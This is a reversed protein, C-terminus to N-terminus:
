RLVRGTPGQGLFLEAGSLLSPAADVLEVRATREWARGASRWVAAGTAGLAVVRGRADNGIATVAFPPAPELPGLARGELVLIRGAASVACLQASKGGRLSVVALSRYPGALEVCAGDTEPRVLALSGDRRLALAAGDSAAVQVVDGPQDQPFLETSLYQRGDSGAGVVLFADDAGREEVGEIRVGAPVVFTRRPQLYGRQVIPSADPRKSAQASAQISAKVMARHLAAGGAGEALGRLLASARPLFEDFYAVRTTGVVGPGRLGGEVIHDVLPKGYKPYSVCSHLFLLQHPRRGLGPLKLALDEGEAGAGIRFRAEPSRKESLYYAGSDHNSHGVYIVVDARVLGEVFNAVARRTRDARGSGGTLQVRVRVRRGLLEVVKECRVADTAGRFGGRGYGQRELDAALAALLDWSYRQQSGPDQSNGGVVAVDLYGDEVLAAQHEELTVPSAPPDLVRTGPRAVRALAARHLAVREAVDALDAPELIPALEEKAERLYYPGDPAPYLALFTALLRAPRRRAEGDAEALENLVEAANFLRTFGGKVPDFRSDLSGIWGERGADVVFLEPVGDTHPYLWLDRGQEDKGLAQFWRGGVWCTEGPEAALAPAALLVVATLVTVFRLAVGLYM